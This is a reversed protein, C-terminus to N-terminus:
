PLMGFQFLEDKSIGVTQSCRQRRLDANVESKCNGTRLVEEGFKACVYNLESIHMIPLSSCLSLPNPPRCRSKPFAHSGPPASVGV